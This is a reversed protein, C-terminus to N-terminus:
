HSSVKPAETVGADALEAAIRERLEFKKIKTGSMPWEDVFRVYRPVRFTAINGRCFDIIEQETASAGPQCQIFAAPVEVYRADPAAVVQATHVAPHTILYDEVEAAAVNEGGVKLMDKLRNRFTVRGDTDMVGVDGTHFFGDADFVQANTEPDNYYGDFTNPGRFCIEGPVDPPLTKNTEPDVIKAEMGPLPFGGTGIRTDLPDDPKSLSLFACAETMGFCSVLAANPHRSQIDHLRGLTGTCEVLRLENLDVENWRPHDVVPMWITEFAPMAVTVDHEVLQALATDADFYGPHIFSCGACLCAIAFGVGGIHFLPLASWVRDTETFLLHETAAGEAANILSGHSLMAGKPAGTTGSTYKIVAIDAAQVGQGRQAVQDLTVRDASADFQSRPMFQTTTQADWNVVHPIPPLEPLVADLLGILDAAAAHRPPATILVEVSCSGLVRKLEFAKFRNNVPVATAGAKWIGFIVPLCDISEPLFYGVRDGARVGLGILGRAVQNAYDGFEAYTLAADPLLTFPHAGRSAVQHDLLAPLTRPLAAM